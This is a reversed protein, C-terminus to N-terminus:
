KRKPFHSTSIDPRKASEEPGYQLRRVLAARQEETISAKLARIYTLPLGLAKAHAADSVGFWLIAVPIWAIPSIPRLIQIFPNFAQFARSYWGLVLGLPVGLVVALTFGWSVRFVSAVIYKILLGKQILEIIGRAVNGPTPFLDSGSWRVALAWLTLFLAAMGVPRVIRWLLSDADGVRAREGTQQAAGNSTSGQRNTIEAATSKM